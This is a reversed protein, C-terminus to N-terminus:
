SVCGKEDAEHLKGDLFQQILVNYLADIHEPLTYHSLNM